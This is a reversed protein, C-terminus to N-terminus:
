YNNAAVGLYASRYVHEELEAAIRIVETKIAHALEAAGAAQPSGFSGASTRLALDYISTATNLCAQRAIRRQEGESRFGAGPFARRQSGGPRAQSLAEGETVKTVTRGDPSLEAIVERRRLRELQGIEIGLSNYWRGDICVGGNKESYTQLTGKLETISAQEM